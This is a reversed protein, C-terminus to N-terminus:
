LIKSFNIHEELMDALKEYTQDKNIQKVKLIEIGKKHALYNVTENFLLPNDFFGHIYCGFVNKNHSICGTKEEVYKNLRKNITLPPLLLKNIQQNTSKNIYESRGSHIEYGSFEIKRNRKVFPYHKTTYGKVQALEKKLTLNTRIELLGLGDIEKIDGEVKNPDYIKKGLIQYGGCIGIVPIGKSNERIIGEALGTEWLYQMDNCTSKTGPIIILDSNKLKDSSLIYNCAIQPHNEFPTFDTYNSIHPLKIISVNLCYKNKRNTQFIKEELALSDEEDIQLNPLYPLVGLVPIGTLKEIQSIAPNLLNIDGRFKNIIIGSFLKQYKQPLLKITGFISAFVGGRDIDAVLITQANAHEAAAMNVFDYKLINIETPSGAGEMIILNYKKKLRDFAKWAINRIETKGNYYKQATINDIAKGNVILQSISNGQPKLLVPNMDTHPKIKAAECQMVQARGMEGGNETVFSNLAMNQAKYPAVRKGKRQFYRCFAAAVLSKGANSTTGVIMIAKTEPPPPLHNQHLAKVLLENEKKSKVALRYYTKDLEKINRCSRIFFGKQLLEKQLNTRDSKILIFNTESPFTQIGSIKNLDATFKIRLEKTKTKTKSIYEVDNYLFSAINQAISNVSWPLQSAQIRKINDATSVAFGLRLGAISFIKTLSKVIIVNKPIDRNIYSESSFTFDIFSEDIIFLTSPNKIINSNIEAKNPFHGTPNNPFGIFVADSLYSNLNSISIHKVRNASCAENYGSYTPSLSAAKKIKFAQLILGFLETAGNGIIINEPLINHAKALSRAATKSYTEPYKAWSCDNTLMYELVAPSPGLPNLNVSFDYITKPIDNITFGFGNMVANINGGHLDKM